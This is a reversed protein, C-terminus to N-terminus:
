SGLLELRESTENQIGWVKHGQKGAITFYFMTLVVNTDNIHKIEIDGLHVTFNTPLMKNM